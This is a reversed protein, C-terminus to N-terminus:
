LPLLRRARELLLRPDLPKGVFGEAGRSRAVQETEEIAGSFMLVPLSGDDFRERLLRLMEWGDVGPMVVDIMVLDPSQAEVLSLGEEASSAEEVV